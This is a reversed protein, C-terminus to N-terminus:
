GQWTFIFEIGTSKAHADFLNPVMQDDIGIIRTTRGIQEFSRKLRDNFYTFPDNEGKAWNLIVISM